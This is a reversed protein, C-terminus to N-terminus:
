YSGHLWAAQEGLTAASTAIAAIAAAPLFPHIPNAAGRSPVAAATADAGVAHIAVAFRGVMAAIAAPALGSGAAAEAGHSHLLGRRWLEPRLRM